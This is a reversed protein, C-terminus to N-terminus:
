SRYSPAFGQRTPSRQQLLPATRSCNLDAALQVDRAQSREEKERGSAVQLLTELLRSEFTEFVRVAAEAEPTEGLFATFDGYRELVPAVNVLGDNRATCDATVSSWPWDRAREVLKARVPNLSVYRVAQALHEEHM